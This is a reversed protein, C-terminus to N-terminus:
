EGWRRKIEAELDDRKQQKGLEYDLKIEDFGNRLDGRVEKGSKPTVMSVVVAGIIAGTIIGLLFNVIKGFM